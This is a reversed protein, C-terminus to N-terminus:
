AEARALDRGAPVSLMPSYAMPAARDSGAAGLLSSHV